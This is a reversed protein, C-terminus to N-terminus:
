RDVEKDPRDGTIRRGLRDWWSAAATVLARDRSPTAEGSETRWRRVLEQLAGVVGGRAFLVVVILVVGLL